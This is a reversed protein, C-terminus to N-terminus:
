QVNTEEALGLEDVMMQIFPHEEVMRELDTKPQGFLWRYEEDPMPPTYGEKLQIILWDAIDIKKSREEDTANKELVDSVCVKCFTLKKAQQTWEDFGDVDPFMIVTRGSLVKMKDISLQSKGGTALWVYQPFCAAGILASKESEVLAVVKNMNLSLNLLHEGFLCQTLEWDDSLHGDKKMRAHIWNVGNGDKIRHGDEGYKMIKGTRVKGNIDIQWFIIDMDKTAGIAYLEGLRSITPSQLTYRDFLGCLFKVFASNYSASQRVYKFPITCPKLPLPRTSMKPVCNRQITCSTANEVGHNKCIHFFTGISYDGVKAKLNDFKRNTEVENYKPNLKSVMHFAERGDEGLSALSAGVEFWNQYGETIDINRSQLQECLEYVTKITNENDQM